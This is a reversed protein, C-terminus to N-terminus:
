LARSSAMRAQALAPRAELNEVFKRAAPSRLFREHRRNNHVIVLVKRDPFRAVTQEYVAKVQSWKFREQDGGPKTSNGYFAINAADLFVTYDRAALFEAFAEFCGQQKERTCALKRLGQQFHAWDAATLSVERLRGAGPM